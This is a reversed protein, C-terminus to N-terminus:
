AEGEHAEVEELLGRVERWIVWLVWCWAGLVVAQQLVFPWTM